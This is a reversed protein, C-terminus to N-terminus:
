PPSHTSFTDIMSQGAGRGGPHSWRTLFCLFTNEAPFFDAAPSCVVFLNMIIHEFVLALTKTASCCTDAARSCAVQVHGEGGSGVFISGWCGRGLQGKMSARTTMQNIDEEINEEPTYTNTRGGSIGQQKVPLCKHRPPHKPFKTTPALYTSFVFHSQNRFHPM